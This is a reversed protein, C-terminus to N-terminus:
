EDPGLRSIASSGVVASSTVIWNWIMESSLRSRSCCPSVSIRIVCLRPTTASSQSRTMTMYAPEITSSPGASSIKSLGRWGYVSPSSADRGRTPAFPESALMGPWTGSRRSRGGAQGKWGRHLYACSTHRSTGGASSCTVGPWRALQWKQRSIAHCGDELRGPQLLDIRESGPQERVHVEDGRLVDRDRDPAALREGEDALGAAA